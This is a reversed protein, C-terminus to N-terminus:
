VLSAYLPKAGVHDKMQNDANSLNQTAERGKAFLCTRLRQTPDARAIGMIRTLDYFAGRMEKTEPRVVCYCAAKTKVISGIEIMIDEVLTYRNQIRSIHAATNTTASTSEKTREFRTLTHDESRTQQLLFTENRQHVRSSMM